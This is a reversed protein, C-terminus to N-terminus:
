RGGGTPDFRPTRALVAEARDRVATDLARVFEPHFFAKEAAWYDAGQGQGIMPALFAPDSWADWPGAGLVKRRTRDWVHFAAWMTEGLLRNFRLAEVADRAPAGAMGRAWLEAVQPDGVIAMRVASWQARTASHEGRELQARTKRLQLGVYALSVVVAATGAAQAADSMQALTV